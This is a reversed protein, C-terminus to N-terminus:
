YNFLLIKNVENTLGTENVQSTDLILINDDLSESHWNGYVPKKNPKRKLSEFHNLASKQSGLFIEPILFLVYVSVLQVVFKYLTISINICSQLCKRIEYM